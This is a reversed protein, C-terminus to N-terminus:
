ANSYFLSVMLIEQRQDTLSNSSLDLKQLQKCEREVLVVIAAADLHNFNHGSLVVHGSKAAQSRISELSIPHASLQISRVDPQTAQAISIAAQIGLGTGWLNVAILKCTKSRLYAM